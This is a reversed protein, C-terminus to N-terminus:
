DNLIDRKISKTYKVIRVKMHENNMTEKIYKAMEFTQYEVGNNNWLNEDLAPIMWEVTYTEQLSKFNDANHQAYLQKVKEYEAFPIDM